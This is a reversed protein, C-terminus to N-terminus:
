GLSAASRASGRQGPASAGGAFDPDGHFSALSVCLRHECGHRRAQSRMACAELRAQFRGAEFSRPAKEHSCIRLRSGEEGDNRGGKHASGTRMSLFTLRMRVILRLAVRIAAAMAIPANVAVVIAVV